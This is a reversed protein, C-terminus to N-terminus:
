PPVSEHSSLSARQPPPRKRPSLRVPGIGVLKRREDGCDSLRVTVTTRRNVTIIPALEVWGGREKEQDVPKLLPSVGRRLVRYHVRASAFSKPVYAEVAYTGAEATLAWVVFNEEAVPGNAAMWWMQTKLERKGHYIERAYTGGGFRLEPTTPESRTPNVRYTGDAEELPESWVRHDLM